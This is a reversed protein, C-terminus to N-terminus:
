LAGVVRRKTETASLPMLTELSAAAQGGYYRDDALLRAGAVPDGAAAAELTDVGAIDRWAPVHVGVLHRRLAAPRERKVAAVLSAADYADQELAIGLLHLWLEGPQDGVLAIAERSAPPCADLSPPLWSPRPEDTGTLASLGILLEFGTGARVELSFRSAAPMVQRIHRVDMVQTRHDDCPVSADDSM